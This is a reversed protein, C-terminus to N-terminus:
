KKQKRKKERERGYIRNEKYSLLKQRSVDREIKKNELRSARKKLDNREGSISLHAPGKEKQLVNNNSGKRKQKKRKKLSRGLFNSSM